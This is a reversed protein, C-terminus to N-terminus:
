TVVADDDASVLLRVEVPYDSQGPFYFISYFWGLVILLQFLSGLSQTRSLFCINLHHNFVTSGRKLVCEVGRWAVGRWEARPAARM